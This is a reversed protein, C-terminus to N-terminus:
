SALRIQPRPPSQAFLTSDRGMTAEFDIVPDAGGFVLADVSPHAAIIEVASPGSTPGCAPLPGEYM